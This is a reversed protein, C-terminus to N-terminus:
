AVERRFVNMELGCVRCKVTPTTGIPPFSTCRYRCGQCEFCLLDRPIAASVQRQHRVREVIPRLEGPAPPWASKLDGKSDRDTSSWWTDLAARVDRAEYERLSKHWMAGEEQVPAMRKCKCAAEYIAKTETPTM